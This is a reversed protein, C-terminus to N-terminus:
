LGALLVALRKTGPTWEDDVKASWGHDPARYMRPNLYRVPATTEDTPVAAHSCFDFETVTGDRGKGSTTIQCGDIPYGATALQETFETLRM